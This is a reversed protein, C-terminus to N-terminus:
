GANSSCTRTARSCNRWSRGSRRTRAAAHPGADRCRHGGATLAQVATAVAQRLGTAEALEALRGGADGGLVADIAEDLLAAQDFEDILRLGAAALKEGALSQALQWLTTAEYGVWACGGAALSRLLERGEGHRRCVLLKRGIPDARAAAALARLLTPGETADMM